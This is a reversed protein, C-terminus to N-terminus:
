PAMCPNKGQGSGKRAFRRLSFPKINIEPKEGYIMSCVIKGTGSALTLGLMGHGTAIVLNDHGARDIIPMDDFTMPRLGAWEEIVPTGVPQKLFQEAGSILKNLRTRNLDLGFGSFEMTGGLRWGTKWPTAVMNNEHLLCPFDPCIGPRKMTISYGKGPQVPLNVGTQKALNQTWAGAALVFADARLCGNSTNVGTIKGGNMHFGTARCNEGFNVGKQVLAQKWAKMLMDPRLHWDDHVLWAGALGPCLAPELNELEASTIKEPRFGYTELFDATAQYRDFEERTKFVILIGKKELDCQMNGSELIEEFLAASYNMLEFKDASAKKMHSWTCHAAFKMLWLMRRIDPYPKIYLPSTRRFTRIIENTVVGPACLPIIGSFHLLGCNGHSSGSGATNQEIITIESTKESLYHACALGIVGAGIIIIQKGTM